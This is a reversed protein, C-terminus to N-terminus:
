RNPPYWSTMIGRSSSLQCCCCFENTELVFYRPTYLINYPVQKGKYLRCFNFFSKKQFSSFHLLFHSGLRFFFSHNLQRHTLFVPPPTATRYQSTSSLSLPCQNPIRTTHNPHVSSATQKHVVADICSSHISKLKKRCLSKFFCFGFCVFRRIRQRLM